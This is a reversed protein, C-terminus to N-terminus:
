HPWDCKFICNWCKSLFIPEFKLKPMVSKKTPLVKLSNSGKQSIELNLIWIWLPTTYQLNCVPLEIRLAFVPYVLTVTSALYSLFLLILAATCVRDVVLDMWELICHFRFTFTYIWWVSTRLWGVVNLIKGIHFLYGSCILDSYLLPAFPHPPVPPSHLPTCHSVKSQICCVDLCRQKNPRPVATRACRISSAM